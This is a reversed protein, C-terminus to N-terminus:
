NFLISTWVALVVSLGAASFPRVVSDSVFVTRGNLKQVPRFNLAMPKSDSFFLTKPFANLQSRSIPIPEAFVTWIVAENCDPTTLSGDYRYYKDLKKQDLIIKNLPFSKLQTSNGSHPILKLANILDNINSNWEPSEVFLFGLVALGDSHKLADALTNYKENQHVIHLEMPYQEGDITHEAGPDFETGWHYHFQIAKYTNPLNGEKIAINGKLTMQVSHGNNKLTWEVDTDLGDYGEFKIPNLRTDIQAKKTVINIPSQRKLGCIQHNIKWISPGCSIDQINYCWDGSELSLSPLCLSILLCTLPRM